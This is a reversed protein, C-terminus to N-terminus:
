QQRHETFSFKLIQMACPVWLQKCGCVNTGKLKRHTCFFSCYTLERQLFYLSRKLWWKLEISKDVRGSCGLNQLYRLKLHWVPPNKKSVYNLFTCAVHGFRRSAPSGSYFPRKWKMKATFFFFFDNKYNRNKLSFKNVFSPQYESKLNIAIFVKLFFWEFM